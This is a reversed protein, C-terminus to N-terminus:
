FRILGFFLREAFLSNALPKNYHFAKVPVENEKWVDVPTFGNSKVGVTLTNQDWTDDTGLAKSIPMM